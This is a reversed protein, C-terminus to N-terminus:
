WVKVVDWIKVSQDDSGTVLLNEAIWACDNIGNNHEEGLLTEITGSTTNVISATKDAAPM